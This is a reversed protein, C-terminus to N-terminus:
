NLKCEEAFWKCLRSSGRKSQERLVPEARGQWWDGGRRCKPRLKWRTWSLDIQQQRWIAFRTAHHLARIWLRYILHIYHFLRTRVFIFIISFINPWRISGHQVEFFHSFNTIANAHFERMDPVKTEWHFSKNISIARTCYWSFPVARVSEFFSLRCVKLFFLYLANLINLVFLSVTVPVSIPVLVRIPVALYIEMKLTRPCYLSNSTSYWHWSM